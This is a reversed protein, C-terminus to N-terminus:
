SYTPCFTHMANELVLELLNQSSHPTKLRSITHWDKNLILRLIKVIDSNIKIADGFGKTCNKCIIGGEKGSFYLSYPNLKKHCAACVGVELGYGQLSAFNWFFYHLLLRLNFPAKKSNLKEFFDNLLAFTQSDKEQGKIFKDLIDSVQRAVEVKEYSSYFDAFNKIKVADTLTKNNKGQIFEIESLYFAEIGARLKSTIKRIAKATIELRGFDETFVSFIQDAENRDAKKFVFSKTRYRVTM